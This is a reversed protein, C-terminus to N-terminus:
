CAPPKAGAAAFSVSSTVGAADTARTSGVSSVVASDCASSARSADGGPGTSAAMVGAGSAFGTEASATAPPSSADGGPGTV